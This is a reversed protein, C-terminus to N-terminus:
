RVRPQDRPTANAAARRHPRSQHRRKRHCPTHPFSPLPTRRVRSRGPGPRRGSIGTPIGILRPSRRTHAGWPKHALGRRHRERWRDNCFGPSPERRAVCRRHDVREFTSEDCHARPGLFLRRRRWFRTANLATFDLEHLRREARVRRPTKSHECAGCSESRCGAPKPAWEECRWPDRPRPIPLTTM